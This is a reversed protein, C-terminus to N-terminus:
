RAVASGGHTALGQNARLLQMREHSIRNSNARRDSWALMRRAAREVLVEVLPRQAITSNCQNSVAHATM